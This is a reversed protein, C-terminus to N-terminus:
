TGLSQGGIIITLSGTLTLLKYDRLMLPLCQILGFNVLSFESFPCSGYPLFTPLCESQTSSTIVEADDCQYTTMPGSKVARSWFPSVPLPLM